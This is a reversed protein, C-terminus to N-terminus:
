SARGLLGDILAVLHGSLPAPIREAAIRSAARARVRATRLAADRAGTDVLIARVAAAGEEGLTPDGLHAELTSRQAADAKEWALRMMETRKGSRLDSLRSKGTVAPDGFVGLDDDIIQFSVGLALGLRELHALMT